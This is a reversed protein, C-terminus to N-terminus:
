AAEAKRETEHQEYKYNIYEVTDEMFNTDTLPYNEVMYDDQKEFKVGVNSYMETLRNFNKMTKPENRRRALRDIMPDDTKGELLAVANPNGLSLYLRYEDDIKGDLKKIYDAIFESWPKSNPYAKAFTNHRNKPVIAVVVDAPLYNMAEEVFYDTNGYNGYGTVRDKAVYAIIKDTPVAQHTTYRSNNAYHDFPTDTLAPRTGTPVSIERPLKVATVDDWQITDLETALYPMKDDEFYVVSNRTAMDNDKLYKALKDRQLYSLSTFKPKGLLVLAQEDYLSNIYVSEQGSSSRQRVSYRFNKIYPQTNHNGGRWIMKGSRLMASIKLAEQISDTEDLQKRLLRPMYDNVYEVLAKLYTKTRETYYLDERSPTFDVSGMDAKIVITARSNPGEFEHQQARYAVGGMLVTVSGGHSGYKVFLDDNIERFEEGDYFSKPESGDVLALGKDWYHFFSDVKTNFDYSRKAPVKVTVGNEDETESEDVITVQGTGDEGLAILATTKMGDKIGIVTFSTTYALPSKSGLGLCGAVDNSERKTSAGYQSYIEQIDKKNMGLGWDQVKFESSFSSPRTIEIPRTQGAFIHSDIANTSIERITAAEADAYLNTLVTMLHATAQPDFGMATVEGPITGTIEVVEDNPIM